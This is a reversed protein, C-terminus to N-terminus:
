MSLVRGFAQFVAADHNPYLKTVHVVYIPSQFLLVIHVLIFLNYWFCGSFSCQDLMTISQANLIYIIKTDNRAFLYSYM